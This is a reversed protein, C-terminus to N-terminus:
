TLASLGEGTYGNSPLWSGNLGQDARDIRCIPSKDIIIHGKSRGKVLGQQFLGKRGSWRERIGCNYIM